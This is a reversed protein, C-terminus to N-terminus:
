EYNLESKWISKFNSFSFLEASMSDFHEKEEPKLSLYDLRYRWRKEKLIESSRKFDASFDGLDIFFSKSNPLIGCNRLFDFTSEFVGIKWIEQNLEFFRDILDTMSHSARASLFTEGKKQFILNCLFYPNGCFYGLQPSNKLLALSQRQSITTESLLADLKEKTLNKGYRSSKIALIRQSKTKPYKIVFNFLYYVNFQWSTQYLYKTNEINVSLLSNFNM